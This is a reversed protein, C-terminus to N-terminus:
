LYQRKALAIATLLFSSLLLQFSAYFSPLNKEYDLNFLPEKAEGKRAQFSGVNLNINPPSFIRKAVGQCTPCHMSADLEAIARWAEFEGCRDCRYEYLPM